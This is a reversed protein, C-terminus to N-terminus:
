PLVISRECCYGLAVEYQVEYPGARRKPERESVRGWPMAVVDERVSTTRGTADTPQSGNRKVRSLKRM